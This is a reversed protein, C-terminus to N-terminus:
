PLAMPQSLPVIGIRRTVSSSTPRNLVSASKKRFPGEVAVAGCRGSGVTAAWAM